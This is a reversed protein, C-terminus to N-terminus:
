EVMTITIKCGRRLFKEVETFAQRKSPTKVGSRKDGKRCNTADVNIRGLRKCIKGRSDRGYIKGSAM